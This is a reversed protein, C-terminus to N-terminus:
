SPRCWWLQCSRVPTCEQAADCDLPCTPHSTAESDSTNDSGQLPNLTGLSSRVGQMDHNRGAISQQQPKRGICDPKLHGLCHPCPRVPQESVQIGSRVRWQAGTENTNCNCDSAESRNSAICLANCTITSMGDDRVWFKCGPGGCKDIKTPMGNIRGDTFGIAQQWMMDIM